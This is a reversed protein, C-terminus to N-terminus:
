IMSFALKKVPLNKMSAKHLFLCTITSKPTFKSTFFYPFPNWFVAFFNKLTILFMSCDTEGYYRM